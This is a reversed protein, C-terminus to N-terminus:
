GTWEGKQCNEPEPRPSVPTQTEQDFEITVNSYGMNSLLKRIQIAAQDEALKLIDKEQADVESYYLGCTRAQASMDPM